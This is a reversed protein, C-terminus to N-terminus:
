NSLIWSTIYLYLFSARIDSLPFGFLNITTYKEMQNPFVIWFNMVKFLVYKLLVVLAGQMAQM